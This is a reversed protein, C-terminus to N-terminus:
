NGLIKEVADLGLKKFRDIVEQQLEFIDQELQLYRNYLHELEPDIKIEEEELRNEQDLTNSLAM